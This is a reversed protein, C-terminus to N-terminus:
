KEIESELKKVKILELLLDKYKIIEDYEKSSIDINREALKKAYEFTFQKRGIQIHKDTLTVNFPLGVINIVPKTAVADGYVESNGSVVAYGSIEANGTVIANYCVVAHGGVIANGSVLANDYVKANGFVHVHFDDDVEKEYFTDYLKHFSSINKLSELVMPTKDSVFVKKM